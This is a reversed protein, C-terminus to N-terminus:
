HRIARAANANGCSHIELCSRVKVNMLSYQEIMGRLGQSMLLMVLM